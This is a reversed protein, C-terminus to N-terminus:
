APREELRRAVAKLRLELEWGECRIRRDIYAFYRYIAFFAVSIWIALQFVPGDLDGIGPRYWTLENGILTEGLTKACMWFSLSFLLGLLIQVLWRGLLEGEFGRSLTRSRRFQERTGQRELLIVENSFAYHSPMLPYARLIFQSVIMAPLSVGLARLMRRPRPPVGFMLDGLVLTLPATAWPAEFVLLIVWLSRSFEPESLLWSNLAAWPAIGIVATLGLVWPRARVVYLALDLLDLFSRERIQILTHDYLM